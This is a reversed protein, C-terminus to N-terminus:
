GEGGPGTSSSASSTSRRLAVAEAELESVLEVSVEWLRALAELGEADAGETLALLRAAGRGLDSNGLDSNGPHPGPHHPAPSASKSQGAGEQGGVHQEDGHGAMSAALAARLQDEEERAAQGSLALAM